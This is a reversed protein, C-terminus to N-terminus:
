HIARHWDRRSIKRSRVWPMALGQCPEWPERSCAAGQGGSESGVAPPAPSDSDDAEERSRM